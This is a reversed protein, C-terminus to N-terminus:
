AKAVNGLQRKAELEKKYVMQERYKERRSEIDEKLVFKLLGVCMEEFYADWQVASPDVPFIE